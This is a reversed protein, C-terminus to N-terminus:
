TREERSFQASVTEFGKFRQTDAYMQYARQDADTLEVADTFPTLLARPWLRQHMVVNVEAALMVALAQLYIWAIAALVVGFAGYLASGHNAQSSVFQSGFVQIVEWVGGAILGGTVVNRFRLERSTLLQFALTFVVANVIFTLGYGLVRLGIGLQHGLLGNVTSLVATVGTSLVVLLGLLSVLALSRVRSKLPNPQENRPVGYIHNFATQAAQMAGLGGYLTGLVGIGLAIGSGHFGNINTKLQGGLAPFQGLATSILDSRLSPHSGLVFGTVALFLLMLPFLSVLAYYTVLAALYPARDDFAKYIVALPFGLWAHSREYDDLQDILRM